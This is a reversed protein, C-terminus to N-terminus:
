GAAAERAAADGARVGAGRRDSRIAAARSALSPLFRM